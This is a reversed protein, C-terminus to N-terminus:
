TLTRTNPWSRQAPGSFIRSSESKFSNAEPFLRNMSGKKECTTNRYTSALFNPVLHGTQRRTLVVINAISDVLSDDFEKLVKRPFFHHWEPKFGENLENDERDFGIRVEQNVWDKPKRSFVTLYLILRLFKDTYEERFDEPIPRRSASLPAALAEIAEIGRAVSSRCRWTGVRMTSWYALRSTAAKSHM